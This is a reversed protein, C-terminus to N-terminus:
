VFTVVRTIDQVTGATNNQSFAQLDGVLPPPQHPNQKMFKDRIELLNQQVAVQTAQTQQSSNSIAPKLAVNPTTSNAAVVQTGVGTHQLIQIPQTGTPNLVQPQGHLPQNQLRPQGQLRIQNGMPTQGAQLQLQIQPQSSVQGQQVMPQQMMRKQQLAILQQLQLTTLAM